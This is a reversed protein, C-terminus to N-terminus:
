TSDKKKMSTIYPIPPVDSQNGYLFQKQIKSQQWRITWIPPYKNQFTKNKKENLEMNELLQGLIRHVRGNRGRDRWPLERPQRPRGFCRSFSAFYCKVGRFYRHSVNFCCYLAENKEVIKRHSAWQLNMSNYSSKANFFAASPWTEPRTLGSKSHFKWAQTSGFYLNSNM